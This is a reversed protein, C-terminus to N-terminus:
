VHSAGAKALAARAASTTILLYGYFTGDSYYRQSLDQERRIQKLSTALRSCQRGCFVLCGTGNARKEFQAPMGNMLHMYLSM